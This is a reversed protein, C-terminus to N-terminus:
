QSWGSSEYGSCLGSATDGYIPEEENSYNSIGVTSPGNSLLCVRTINLGSMTGSQAAWVRGTSSALSSEVSDCDSINRYTVITDSTEFSCDSGNATSSQVISATSAMDQRAHVAFATGGLASLIVAAGIIIRKM